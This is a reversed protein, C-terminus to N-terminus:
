LREVVYDCEYLLITPYQATEEDGALGEEVLDISLVPLPGLGCDDGLYEDDLEFLNDKPVRLDRHRDLLTRFQDEILKSESTRFTELTAHEGLQIAQYISPIDFKQDLLELATPERDFEPLPLGLRRLADYYLRDCCETKRLALEEDVWPYKALSEKKLAEYDEFKKVEEEEQLKHQREREKKRQVGFEILSKM